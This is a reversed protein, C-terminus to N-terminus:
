RVDRATRDFLRLCVAPFTLSLWGGRCLRPNEECSYDTLAQRLASM